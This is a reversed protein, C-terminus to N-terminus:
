FSGFVASAHLLIVSEVLCHMAAASKQALLAEGLALSVHRIRLETSWTLLLEIWLETHFESLAILTKIDVVITSPDSAM